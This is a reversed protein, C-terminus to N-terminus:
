VAVPEGQLRRYMFGTAIVIVPLAVLLGIGCLLTGIMLAVIVGIYFGVLSGMNKNVLKLSASIGDIAGMRKDLIFFGFFQAFFFVVIAGIGCTVFGVVSMAVALIFSALIYAGLNDTSVMKKVNLTEGYSILLAGRIIVMELLFLGIWYLLAMIAMSLFFLVIGGGSGGSCDLNGFQDTTCTPSTNYIAAFSIFWGITMLVVWVVLGGLAVLIIPGINQQFKLWGYNFAEGPTAAPTGASPAPSAGPSPAPAPPSPAPPPQPSGGAPTDQPPYWQGDSAQWWGPGQPSSSM